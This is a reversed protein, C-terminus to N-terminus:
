FHVGASLMVQTFGQSAVAQALKGEVFIRSVDVGLGAAAFGWTERSVATSFTWPYSGNPTNVNRTEYFLHDARTFLGLGGLLYLRSGLLPVAPRAVADLSLVGSNIDSHFRNSGEHGFQLSARLPLPFDGLRFAASGGLQVTLDGDSIAGSFLSFRHPADGVQAEARGGHLLCVALAALALRGTGIRM